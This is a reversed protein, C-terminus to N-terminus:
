REHTTATINMIVTAPNLTEHNGRSALAFVTEETEAVIKIEL